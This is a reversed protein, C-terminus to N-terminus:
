EPPKAAAILRAFIARMQSTETRNLHQDFFDHVAKKYAPWIKERMSRGAPTLVAYAGRRDDCDRDREVLGSAALRDVLRTLNSRSIVLADALEWMRLRGEASQQLAWLVDYWELTPLNGARLRNEIQALLVAHSKLFGPWASIRETQNAKQTLREATTKPM